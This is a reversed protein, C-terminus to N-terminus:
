GRLALLTIKAKSVFDTESKSERSRGSELEGIRGFQAPGDM